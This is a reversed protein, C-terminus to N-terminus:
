LAVQYWLVVKFWSRFFLMPKITWFNPPVDTASGAERSRIKCFTAAALAAPSLGRSTTDAM